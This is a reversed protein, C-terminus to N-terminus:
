CIIIAIKPFVLSVFAFFAAVARTREARAAFSGAPRAFWTMECGHNLSFASMAVM